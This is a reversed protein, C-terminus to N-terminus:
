NGDILQYFGRSERKVDGKRRTLAVRIANRPDSSSPCGDMRSVTSVLEDLSMPRPSSKLAALALEGWSNGGQSFETDPHDDSFPKLPKQPLPDTTIERPFVPQTQHSRDPHERHNKEGRRTEPFLPYGSIEVPAAEQEPNTEPRSPPSFHDGPASPSHGSLIGDLIREVKKLSDIKQTLREIERRTEQLFQYSEQQYSMDTEKAIPTPESRKSFNLFSRVQRQFKQVFIRGVPTNKRTFANM